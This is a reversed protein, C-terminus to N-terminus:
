KSISNKGGFVNEKSEAGNIKHVQSHCSGSLM